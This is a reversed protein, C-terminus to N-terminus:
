MFTENIQPMQGKLYLICYFLTYLIHNLPGLVSLIYKILKTYGMRQQLNHYEHTMHFLDTCGKM